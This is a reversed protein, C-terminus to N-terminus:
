SVEVDDRAVECQEEALVALVGARFAPYAMLQTYGIKSPASLVKCWMEIGDPYVTALLKHRGAVEITIRSTPATTQQIM